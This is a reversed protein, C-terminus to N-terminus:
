RREALREELREIARARVADHQAMGTDSDILHDEATVRVPIDVEIGRGDYLRGDPRFSAMSACRVSLGSRPLTFTQSRASGGGTPAGIVEVADLVTLAGVFIDTASFCGADTLLAVPGTFHFTRADANKRDLLLYHWASFKEAPPTWEPKFSRAARDIAARQEATLEPTDSRVMFRAVLHDDDRDPHLRYAAINGVLPTAGPALLYPALGLLHARSGGGNGRVDIIWADCDALATLVDHMADVLDADMAPISLTGIRQGTNMETVHHLPRPPWTGYTARRSVLTLEVDRTDAVDTLSALTLTASGSTRMGMLDRVDNIERLARLAQRRVYHESGANIFARQSDIWSEIERGDIALVRPHDPALLQTRDASSAIVIDDVEHLLCPLAGRGMSRVGSVSAHGDGFPAVIATLANALEKTPLPDPAEELQLLLKAVSDDFDIGRWELYAFRAAFERAFVAVDARAADRSIESPAVPTARRANRTARLAQRKSTTNPVHELTVAVGDSLRRGHVSATTRPASGLIELVEMLDEAFRKDRQGPWREDIAALIEDCAVGDISEFAYWEGAIDVEPREDTGWRVGDFPSLKDASRASAETGMLALSLLSVLVRLTLSLNSTM